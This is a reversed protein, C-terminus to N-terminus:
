TVASGHPIIIPSNQKLFLAREATRREVLGPEKEEGAYEWRLFQDAAEAMKEEHILKLLTSTSFNHFGVNFTFSVLASFQNNGLTKLLANRVQGVVMAVDQSLFNNAQELTIVDGEQVNHRHGYGITWLGVGDQYAKLRLGEFRKIVALGEDTLIMPYM